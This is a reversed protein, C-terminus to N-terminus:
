TYYFYKYFTPYSKLFSKLTTRTSSGPDNITFKEAVLEAGGTFGTIVVWHQSGYSNKAGLLVPKGEKLKLYIKKLYDTKTTVVTYHSPWYVNGSSTYSLKKAMENPYITSGNKFSEMMAIATTACGIQEITKGSSGIKVKAWRSDYQKFSPVSLKVASYTTSNEALALYKSSVFGTKTGSFLIKSWGNQTSLEIVTQNNKLGTLRSHSTSPGSRVNLTGSTLKVVKDTHSVRKIYDAHCYGYGGSKYEVKWWDGSKSILTVYSGKKLTSVIESKTSASKRVNLVGSTISTIGVDAGDSIAASVSFTCLSLFIAFVTLFVFTKKM